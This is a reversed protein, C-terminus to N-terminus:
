HIEDQALGRNRIGRSRLEIRQAVHFRALVRWAHKLHSEHLHQSRRTGILVSIYASLAPHMPM